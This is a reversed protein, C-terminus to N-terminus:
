GTRLVSGPDYFLNGFAGLVEFIHLQPRLVLLSMMPKTSTNSCQASAVM